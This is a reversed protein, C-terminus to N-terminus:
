AFYKKFQAEVKAQTDSLAQDSIFNEKLGALRPSVPWLEKLPQVDTNTPFYQADRLVTQGEASLIYDVFLMAANPHTTGRPIMISAVTSPMPQLPQAAIPAGKTAAIIPLHEATTLTIAYEGAIVRDILANAAGNFAVVNQQSLAKLYADAKDGMTVMVNAVFMHAGSNSGVRWALRNKWKPDLLDEFTKPQTGPPVLKTNYATGYYSFRTAASLGSRERYQPPIKELYPSDFKQLLGSKLFLPALESGEMTDGVPAGARLEALMKQTIAVETGRYSEIAVFPYKQKFGITIARLGLNPILASYFMVRGERKAGDELLKQRDGGRYTFPDFAPAAIVPSRAATFASALAVKAFARRDMSRGTEIDVRKAITAAMM